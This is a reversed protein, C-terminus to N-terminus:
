RRAWCRKSPQQHRAVPQLRDALIGPGLCPRRDRAGDLRRLLDAAAHRVHGHCVPQRQHRQRFAPQCLPRQGREDSADALGSFAIGTLGASSPVYTLSAATPSNPNNVIFLGGADSVAYLTGNLWAMGTIDGGPGSGQSTIVPSTGATNVNFVNSLDVQSGTATANTLFPAPAGNIATAIATAIQPATSAANFRVRVANPTVVGAASPTGNAVNNFITIPTPDQGVGAGPSRRDSSRSTRRTRVASPSATGAYSGTVAATATAIANGIIARTDDEEFLIPRNTGTVGYFGDLVM